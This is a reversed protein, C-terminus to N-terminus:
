RTWSGPHNPRSCASPMFARTVALSSMVAAWPRASYCSSVSQPNRLIDKSLSPKGYHSRCQWRPGSMTRTSQTLQNRAIRLRCLRQLVWSEGLTISVALLSATLSTWGDDGPQSSQARPESDRRGKSHTVPCLPSPSIISEKNSNLQPPM